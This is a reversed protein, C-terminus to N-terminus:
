FLELNQLVQRARHDWTHRSFVFRKASYGLRQRKTADLLAQESRSKFEDFSSYAEYHDGESFEAELSGPHTVSSRHHLLYGGAAMVGLNRSHLGLGHTNNGLNILTNAYVNALDEDTTLVGAFYPKAFKHSEMHNGYIRINKSVREAFSVLLRRDIIRPYSQSMWSALSKSIGDINKVSITQLARVKKVQEVSAFRSLLANPIRNLVEVIIRDARQVTKSRDGLLALLESYLQNINLIGTLPKYKEEVLAKCENIYQNNYNIGLFNRGSKAIFIKALLTSILNEKATLNSVPFTELPEIDLPLGGCLSFDCLDSKKCGANEPGVGTYLSLVRVNYDNINFGLQESTGLLYLIDGKEFVLNEDTEPYVDQFWSLYIVDKSVVGSKPRTKNVALIIDPQYQLYRAVYESESSKAIQYQYGCKALSRGFSDMMRFDYPADTNPVLLFKFPKKKM